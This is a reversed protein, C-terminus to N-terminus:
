LNVLEAEKVTIIESLKNSAGFFLEDETQIAESGGLWMAKLLVENGKLPNSQSVTSSYSLEHRTPKRIYCIHGDVIIAWLKGNKKKWEGIQEPTAQGILTNEKM